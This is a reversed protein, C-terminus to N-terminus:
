VRREPSWIPGDPTMEVVRNRGETKAVRLGNNVRRLLFSATDGKISGGVCVSVTVRGAGNEHPVLPHLMLVQRFREACEIAESPRRQPMIVAFEDGGYRAVLDGPRVHNKLLVGIARLAQDAAAGGFNENFAAFYDLDCLLLALPQRAATSQALAAALAADFTARSALSTLPDVTCEARVAALQQQLAAIERNAATMRAEILACRVQSEKTSQMLRDVATLVRQLTLASTISLESTEAIMTERQARTASIACDLTTGLAHLEEGLQEAVREAGQSMRWPSLHTEYLRDVDSAALEGHELRLADVAANLAPNRGSKYAFWFEFARPSATLGAGRLEEIVAAGFDARQPAPPKPRATSM